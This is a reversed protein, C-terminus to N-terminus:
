LLVAAVTLAATVAVIITVPAFRLAFGRGFTLLLGILILSSRSGAAPRDDQAPPDVVGADLQVDGMLTSASLTAWCNRNWSSCGTDPDRDHVGPARVAM